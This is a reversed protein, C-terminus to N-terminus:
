LCASKSRHQLFQKRRSLDIGGGIFLCSVGVALIGVSSMAQMIGRLSGVSVFNVNIFTFVLTVVIAILVLLMEKSKIIRKFLASNIM